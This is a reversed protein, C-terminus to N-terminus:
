AGVTCDRARARPRGPACAISAATGHDHVHGSQNSEISLARQDGLETLTRKRRRAQPGRRGVAVEHCAPPTGEHPVPRRVRVAAGAVVGVHVQSAAQPSRRVRQVRHPRTVALPAVTGTRREGGSAAWRSGIDRRVCAAGRLVASPWCVLFGDAAGTNVILRAVSPRKRAGRRVRRKAREEVVIQSM